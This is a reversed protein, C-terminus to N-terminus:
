AQKFRVVLTGIAGISLGGVVIINDLLPGVGGVDAAYAGDHFVLATTEASDGSPGLCKVKLTAVDINTGPPIIEGGVGDNDMVVGLVAFAPQVRRVIVNASAIAAGGTLDTGELKTGDWDIAAVLGQVQADSSLTLPVSVVQGLFGNASGLKLERTQASVAAVTLVGLSCFALVRARTM